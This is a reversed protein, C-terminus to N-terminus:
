TTIVEFDSGEFELTLEGYDSRSGFTIPQEGFFVDNMQVRPRDGNPFQLTAKINIKLSPERRRARAIISQMLSFVDQNEFHLTMRGRIGRFIEDRRDTTEGLYGERLLETQASVEFSRIDTVTELPKGDVVILVQVEQGKVRQSM